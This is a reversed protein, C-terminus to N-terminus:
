KLWPQLDKELQAKSYPTGHDLERNQLYFTEAPPEDEWTIGPEYGVFLDWAEMLPYNFQESYVRSGFRWLDWFHEVRPDTM